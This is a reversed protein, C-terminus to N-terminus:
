KLGEISRLQVPVIFHLGGVQTSSAPRASIVVARAQPSLTIMDWRIDYTIQRNGNGCAVYQMAYGAPVNAYTQTWDLLGTSTVKAGNGGYTGGSGAGQNAADLTITWNTGACDTLGGALNGGANAQAGTIQELIHEAVMTSTTSNASNNDAYMGSCLLPTLAGLGVALVFMAAMLEILSFGREHSRLPRPNWPNALPKM